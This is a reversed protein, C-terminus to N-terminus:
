FIEHNDVIPLKNHDHTVFEADEKANGEDQKLQERLKKLNTKFNVLKCKTNEDHLKWVDEAKMDNPIFEGAIDQILLPEAIKLAQLTGHNIIYIFKNPYFPNVIDCSKRNKIKPKFLNSFKAPSSKFAFTVM